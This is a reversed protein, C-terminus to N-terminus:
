IQGQKSKPVTLYFNFGLIIRLPDIESAAVSHKYNSDFMYVTNETCPLYFDDEFTIGPHGKESQLYLVGSFQCYKGHEHLNAYDGKSYVAAWLEHVQLRYGHKLEVFYNIKQNLIDILNDFIDAQHHLFYNSQWCVLKGQPDGKGAQYLSNIYDLVQEKNYEEPYIVSKYIRCKSEHKVTAVHIPDHTNSLKNLVEVKLTM